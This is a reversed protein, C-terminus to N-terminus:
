LRKSLDFAVAAIAGGIVADIWRVSRNPILQYLLSFGIFQLVLPVFGIFPAWLQQAVGGSHRGFFSITFTLSRDVLIPTLPLLASYTLASAAQAGRDNWFRLVAYRAFTYLARAWHRLKHGFDWSQEQRDGPGSAM